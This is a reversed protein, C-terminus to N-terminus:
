PLRFRRVLENLEHALTVLEQSVDHTELAESATRQAIRGITSVRQDVNETLESQSRVSQEMQANLERIDKVRTVIQDLGGMSNSLADSHRSATERAAHMVQVARQAEQRLQQVIEEISRTSEHSMNALKRVEDAVVAFGRGMEGARAAEIAANLALLNTQEAISKIVDLVDSVNQSRQDLAEIVQAAQQIEQVLSLIGTIADRTTQTSKGAERDADVSAEATRAASSGAESAIAKLELISRETSSAEELQQNAADATQTSAHSIRDAASNLQTSTTTVLSLSAGFKELMSNITQALFGVEDKSNVQLRQTLDSNEEISRMSARMKVLPLIVIRRLLMVLLAIGMISLVLNAIAVMLLNNRFERDLENLSYSMRVAGLVTGQEVQHCTLCNTGMHNASALLPTLVTVYRGSADENFEKVQEGKIAREDLADQPPAPLTTVGDLKGPTHVVRIERVGPTSLYKKRLEEHQDMTGTLMMTNIGDFYSHSMVLAKDLAIDKALASENNATMWTSTSLVAIFILSIALIIKRQISTTVVHQM